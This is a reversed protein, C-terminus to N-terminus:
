FAARGLGSCEVQLHAFYEAQHMELCTDKVEAWSDGVSRVEYHKPHLGPWIEPRRESFDTLAAIVREPPLPTDIDLEVRAM